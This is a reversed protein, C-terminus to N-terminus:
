SRALRSEVSAIKGKIGGERGKRADIRLNLIIRDCDPELAQYCDRVVALLTDLDEAEITTAMAGFAHPLGSRRIAEVARAVYASVSAGKDLPYISLEALVSV